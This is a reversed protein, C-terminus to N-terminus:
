LRVALAVALYLAGSFLGIAVWPMFRWPRPTETFREHHRFSARQLAQEMELGARHEIM